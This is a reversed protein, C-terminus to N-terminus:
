GNQEEFKMRAIPDIRYAEIDLVVLAKYPRLTWYYVEFTPTLLIQLGCIPDWLAGVLAGCPGHTWPARRGMCSM